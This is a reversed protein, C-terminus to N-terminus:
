GSIRSRCARGQAGFSCPAPACSRGLSRSQDFIDSWDRAPERAANAFCKTWLSACRLRGKPSSVHRSRMAPAQGQKKGCGCGTQGHSGMGGRGFAAFCLELGPQQPQFGLHFRHLRLQLLRAGCVRCGRGLRCGGRQDQGLRCLRQFKRLRGLGLGIGGGRPKGRQLGARLGVAELHAAGCKLHAAEDLNDAAHGPKGVALQCAAREALFEEQGLLDRNAARCAGVHDAMGPLRAQEEGRARRHGALIQFAVDLEIERQGRSRQACLAGGIGIGGREPAPEDAIAVQQDPLFPGGELVGRM